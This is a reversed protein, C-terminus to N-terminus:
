MVVIDEDIVLKVGGGLKYTTFGSRTAGESFGGVIDVTDAADGLVKLSDTPSMDLVDSRNLELTHAGSRLDFKEISVLKNKAVGTLDVDGSAVKVTDTGGGGNFTDGNSWTLTDNGNGGFVKDKGGRGNIKDNGNFGNLTDALNSGTITDAGGFLFPLLGQSDVDLFGQVTAANHNLGSVRFQLANSVYQEVSNLTGTVQDGAGLMFSGRYETRRGGAHFETILSGSFTTDTEAYFQWNNM